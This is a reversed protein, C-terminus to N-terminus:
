RNDGSGRLVGRELRSTLKEINKKAVDDLSLDFDTSIQAVYWLVDGIEAAIADKINPTVEGQQDRFIKKVKGALEGAESTLGLVSYVFSKGIVVNLNTRKALAQYETFDM